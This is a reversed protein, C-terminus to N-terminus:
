DGALAVPQGSGFQREVLRAYLGGRAILDRHSGDEVIQGRRMVLIRDADRVTSLRHAIIISTRGALLRKLGAQILAETETDISSTAEDLVLVSHPSHVLARAFALLQRQGYSLNAGGPLLRYDYGGPLREIFAAAGVLRAAETMHARQVAPNFLRLHDAITGDFCYPNQPVVTVLERLNATAIARVDHGNITVRGANVDYFRALLGALSTKGAGTAGVIAVRQGAPIHLSVDRLVTEDDTYGFSVGEFAITKPADPAIHVPDPADVLHPEVRLMRAIREGAALATQIQAIQESLLLLPEFWRRSYEIFAILMGLSAWGALVGQGGGYLLLALGASTTFQLISSYITYYDRLRMHVDRHARNLVDFGARSAAQQGFLQVITMGNFQENLFALYRAVVGHYESSARRIRRRWYITAAIAIPMVAISLLALRWNLVLMIVVVGVLTLLQSVVMVISTSLLETLAEVDNTMRSVLQGVPTTNFFATDQRLIHEFLRQRLTVLAKQGVTQLVFTYAFRLGFILGILSFYAIGLPILGELRQQAIPGDVAQQVLIPMTVTLASVALLMAFVAAIAGLHPRLIQGLMWYLHRDTITGAESDAESVLARPHAANALADAASAAEASTSLAGPKHPGGRRAFIRKLREMRTRRQETMQPENM